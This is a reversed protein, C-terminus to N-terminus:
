RKAQASYKVVFEKAERISEPYETYSEIRNYHAATEDRQYVHHYPFGHEVLFKVTEWKSKESRKPPRFRHPLRVMGGGCELCLKERNDSYPVNFAKCCNFCVNKHGM